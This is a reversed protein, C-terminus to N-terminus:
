NLFFLKLFLSDQQSLCSQAVKPSSQPTVPRKATSLRRHSLEGSSKNELQAHIGAIQTSEIGNFFYSAFNRSLPRDTFGLLNKEDSKKLRADGWTHSKRALIVGSRDLLDVIVEIERESPEGAFEFIVTVAFDKWRSKTAVAEISAVKDDHLDVDISRKGSNLMKGAYLGDSEYKREPFPGSVRFEMSPRRRSRWLSLAIPMQLLFAAGGWFLFKRRSTNQSAMEAGVLEGDTGSNVM